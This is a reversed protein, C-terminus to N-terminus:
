ICENFRSYCENREQLLYNPLQDCCARPPGRRDTASYSLSLSALNVTQHRTEESVVVKIYRNIELKNM